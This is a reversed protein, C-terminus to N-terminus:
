ELIIMKKSAVFLESQFSYYFIGSSRLESKDVVVENYGKNWNRKISKVVRGQVDTINLIGEMSQALKLSIVTKRSFPNPYNQHLTNIEYITSPHVISNQQGSLKNTTTAFAGTTDKCAGGPFEASSNDQVKLSVKCLDKNEALDHVYIDVVLLAERGNPIDACTIVRNPKTVDPGFSFRLKDKATCNDEAGRDFDKAWIEVTGNNPMIVTALGDICYPTPKKCDKVTITMNCITENGCLDNATMKVKYIGETFTGTIAKINSRRDVSNDPKTIEARIKIDSADTCNDSASVPLNIVADCGATICTTNDSCTFTPAIEDIVKIIQIYQMYGDGNDKINRFVCSRDSSNARLRDDVIVDPHHNHQNPDYKCWDILTWTRVIKYCASDEITFVEDKYQVGIQECEDDSIIPAGAGRFSTDTRHFFDCTVVKDEPFIVEFDSRHKVYIKQTATVENGCKDKMTWTRSIWGEGCGNITGANTVKLTARDLLCNDTISFEDEKLPATQKTKKDFMLLKDFYSAYDQHGAQDFSDLLLWPKCYIPAWGKSANCAQPDSHDDENVHIGLFDSGGYYGYPENISNVKSGSRDKIDLPWTSSTYREGYGCDAYDAWGPAGDCYITIDKLGEAVPAQKDDVLVNVMCDSYLRPVFSLPYVEIELWAVWSPSSTTEVKIFRAFGLVDRTIWQWGETYGNIIDVPSGWNVGDRSFYINHITNGDPLQAVRLRIQGISFNQGLDVSIWQLPHAGANWATSDDGDFAKSAVSGADYYNSATANKDLAININGLPLRGGYFKSQLYGKIFYSINRSDLKSKSLLVPKDECSKKGNTDFWNFNFDARYEPYSNYCFWAHPSCPFIHSDYRPLGCAEYVRMVVQESGCEAFNVTDSFVYCNIWDEILADYKVKDKWFEAKGVEAELTRTWYDRWFTISDMYAAAYHLVECCNDRSGNDLDKAAISAWCTAPDVTVQTFEDCVPNPPTNDVVPILIRAKSTNKCADVLFVKVTDVGVPLWIHKVPLVGQIVKPIGSEYYTISFNQKVRSCDTVKLTDIDVFQGCQHPDSYVVPLTKSEGVPATKDVVEIWQVCLKEARTCWDTIRWTRRIKYGAGCIPYYEDIPPSVTLKCAANNPWLSVLGNKTKIKPFGSRIPDKFSVTNDKITIVELSCDVVTDRPCVISDLSIRKIFFEKECEKTNGWPDSAILHRIVKGLYFSDCGYDIFEVSVVLVKTEADACNDKVTYSGQPLQAVEFCTVTDVECALEPGKKDEVCLKGWTTNGTLIDKVSFVMCYGLHSRDLKNAPSYSQTGFPYAITIETLLDGCLGANKVVDGATVVKMCNEDMSINVQDHAVLNIIAPTVSVSVYFSDGACGQLSTPKVYYYITQDVKSINILVDNIISDNGPPNISEGLVNPNDYPINSGISQVAYWSFTSPLNCEISDTLDYDIAVCSEIMKSGDKGKPKPLITITVSRNTTDYNGNADAVSDITVTISGATLNTFCLTVVTDDLSSATGGSGIPNCGNFGLIIDNFFLDYPGTGGSASIEIKVTDGGGECVTDSGIIRIASECEDDNLIAGTEEFESSLNVTGNNITPNCLTVVFTEGLEIETDGRIPISILQSQDPNGAPFMVTGSPFVNGFFDGATAPNPGFGSVKYGVSSASSGDGGSRFIRFNILSTGTDGEFQDGGSTDIGIIVNTDPTLQLFSIKFKNITGSIDLQANLAFLTGGLILLSWLGNLAGLKVSSSSKILSSKEPNSNEM